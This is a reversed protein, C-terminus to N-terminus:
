SEKKQSKKNSKILNILGLCSSFLEFCSGIISIYAGVLYNYYIWLISIFVGISYTLKLNKQWTAYTFLCAIFIPIISYLNNYTFIGCLIYVLLFLGLIFLSIKKNNEEYKYFVVTKITSVIASVCASFANLFFYQIAFFINAFVQLFLFDKKNKKQYSFFMFLLAIAGIIQPIFKM